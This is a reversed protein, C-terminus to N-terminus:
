FGGKWMYWNAAVQTGGTLLSSMAAVQTGGTLLSSMAAVPALSSNASSMKSLGYSQAEHQLSKRNSGWAAQLANMRATAVDIQKQLETSAEIEKSNGVGVAIGNAAAIAKQSAKIQGARQTLKAIQAEGQRYAQEVGMRMIEANDAEIEAQRKQTHALAKAGAFASYVGGIAQGISAGLMLSGFIGSGSSSAESKPAPSPAPTNYQGGWGGYDYQQAGVRFSTDANNLNYNLGGLNM